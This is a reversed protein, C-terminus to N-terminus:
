GYLKRYLAPKVGAAKEFTHTFHKLDNYGVKKCIEAVPLNTERLLVKTQEMRVNMLYKAFGVETEKKFLVSFYASSLGVEKSVEELTIQESYHNQIYRKALRVPREADMKQEEIKALMQGYVLNGLVAFLEEVSKCDECEDVFWRQVKEKDRIDLRMAFMNGASCVLELVEWGHVQSIAALSEQLENVAAQAETASYEAIAIGIKRSFKDLLKHEYLVSEQGIDKYLQGTGEVYHEKVAFIAQEM